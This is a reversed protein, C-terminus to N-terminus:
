IAPLVVRAGAEIRYTFSLEKTAGGELDCDMRVYGDKSDFRMGASPQVSVEVDRIESVPVRETLQVPRRQGSLNSVFLRVTRSVKQTGLVATTERSEEVKRRVRLGDDIGFGLEFPEGPAVFLIRSRGALETGRIIHVPGALLPRTGTLTATARLHAGMSKEPFAVREVQCPLTLSGIEVRVPMGTSPLSTPRQATFTLPEGGDDVGPMEEVARQGRGLGAVAITQERTEVVVTRKEQDTKKRLRLSDETLQPAAAVQAPRATSFRLAVDRWDEGTNQWATAWTTIHLSNSGDTATTLRCLHEPRWLACPTRYSLEILAVGAVSSEVQLEIAAEYRPEVRRAQELRLNCRQLDREADKLDARAATLDDLAQQQARVLRTHAGRWGDLDTAASRPVRKLAIAWNELLGAIRAEHTTLAEVSREAATKRSVASRQEQERAAVESESCVPVQRVRRTVRSSLVRASGGKINQVSALVSPDSVMTAIGGVRLWSVGVTLPAHIRRVVEARDEFLTVRNVHSGCDVVAPEGSAPQEQPSSAVTSSISRDTM